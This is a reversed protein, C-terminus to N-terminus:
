RVTLVSHMGLMYHGAVNCILTYKGAKLTLTLRKTKGPEIDEIEGLDRGAENAKFHSVPLKGAGRVVVLEHEIKGANRVVFTVKGAQVVAPKASVNMETVVVQATSAASRSGSSAFAVVVGMTALLAGAAVAVALVRFQVKGAYTKM